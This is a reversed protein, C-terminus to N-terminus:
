IYSLQKGKMMIGYSFVDKTRISGFLHEADYVCDFKMLMHIASSLVVHDTMSISRIEDLLKSGSTKARENSLEACAKFTIMYIVNNPKVLMQEFLDLAKETMGNDLYGVFSKKHNLSSLMATGQMMVGYSAVNRYKMRAFLHEANELDGFKMLMHIASNWLVRDAPFETLTRNLLIKGVKMARANVLLGCAKFM